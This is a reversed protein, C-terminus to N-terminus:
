SLISEISKIETNKVILISDRGSTNNSAVGVMVGIEVEIMLFHKYYLSFRDLTTSLSVNVM